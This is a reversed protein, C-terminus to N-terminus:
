RKEIGIKFEVGQLMLRTCFKKDPENLLSACVCALFDSRTFNEKDMYESLKEWDGTGRENFHDTYPTDELMFDPANYLLSELANLKVAVSSDSTRIGELQKRAEVITDYLEQAVNRYYEESM